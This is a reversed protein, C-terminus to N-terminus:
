DGQTSVSEKADDGACPRSSGRVEPGRKCRGGWLHDRQSHGTPSRPSLPQLEGQGARTCPWPRSSRGM